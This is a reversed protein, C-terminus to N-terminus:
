NNVIRAKINSIKTGISYLGYVAILLSIPMIINIIKESIIAASSSAFIAVIPTILSTGCSPCGLGLTVLITVLSSSGILEDDLRKQKKIAYLLSAISVGQIISILIILLLIYLGSNQIISNFPTLLTTTKEIFSLKSSNIISLLTEINLLWYIIEFFIVSFAISLLFYKKSRLLWVIGKLSTIIKIKLFSIKNKM